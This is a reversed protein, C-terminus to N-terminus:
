SEVPILNETEAFENNPIDKIITSTTKTSIIRQNNNSKEENHTVDFENKINSTDLIIIAPETFAVIEFDKEVPKGILLTSHKGEELVKVEQHEQVQRELDEKMNQCGSGLQCREGDFVTGLPCVM